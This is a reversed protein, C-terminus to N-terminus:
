GGPLQPQGLTALEVARAAGGSGALSAVAVALAIGAVVLDDVTLDRKM